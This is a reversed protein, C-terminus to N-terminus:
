TEGLLAGLVTDVNLLRGESGPTVLAWTQDLFSAIATRDLELLADGDPSRLRVHVVPAGDDDQAPWVVIDGDGVRHDLGEALLDRAFVWRVDTPEGTHFLAVVALPDSTSYRLEAELPLVSGNAAIMRVSLPYSLSTDEM